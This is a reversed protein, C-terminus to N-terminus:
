GHRRCVMVLEAVVLQGIVVGGFVTYLLHVFSRRHTARALAHGLLRRGQLRREQEGQRKEKKVQKDHQADKRLTRAGSVKAVITGVV